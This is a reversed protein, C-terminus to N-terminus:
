PWLDAASTNVSTHSFDDFKNTGFGVTRVGHLNGTTAFTSDVVKCATTGNIKVLINNGNLVVTMVDGAHITIDTSYVDTDSGAVRKVLHYLSDYPSPWLFWYNSQNVARFVLGDDSNGTIRTVQVTGDHQGTNVTFIHEGGGVGQLQNSAITWTGGGGGPVSWAFSGTPTSGVAGNSRNFNDAAYTTPTPVTISNSSSSESSSGAHNTAHVTFTYSTGATLGPVLVPSASGTGTFSGPSSTATFSAARGPGTAATFTVSASAFGATATGITPTGPATPAQITQARATFRAKSLPSTDLDNGVGGGDSDYYVMYLCNHAANTAFDFMLDIYPVCDGCGRVDYQTSPAKPSVNAWESIACPKNHAQAFAILNDLYVSVEGIMQSVTPDTNNYVKGYIDPSIVDVYADGPYSSTWDDRDPLPSYNIKLVQGARAAAAFGTRINTVARQWAQKFKTQDPVGGVELDGGIDFEWWPRIYCTAPTLLALNQGLSQHDADHTGAIVATLQTNWQGPDLDHPIIPIGIDVARNPYAKTYAPLNTDS